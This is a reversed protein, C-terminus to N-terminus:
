SSSNILITSEVEKNTAYLHIVGPSTFGRREWELPGITSHSRQRALLWDDQTCKGDALRDLFGAFSAVDPDGQLLRNNETLEIVTTFNQLYLNMGQEESTNMRPRRQGPQHKGWLPTGLVPPLQATDGVLVVIIGGFIRDCAKVEQLRLNIHLLNEPKLMTMEDVFMVRVHKWKEQMVRLSHTNLKSYKSKGVPLALGNSRSYVTSGRFLVTAAKGTTALAKVQDEPLESQLCRMCHSKGTGGRGRFIMCRSLGPGSDTSSVHDPDLLQDMVEMFKRQKENLEERHIVPAEALDEFDPPLNTGKRWADLDSRADQYSV